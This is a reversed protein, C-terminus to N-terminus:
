DNAARAAAYLARDTEDLDWFHEMTSVVIGWSDSAEYREVKALGIFDNSGDNAPGNNILLFLAWNQASKM